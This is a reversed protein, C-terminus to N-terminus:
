SLYASQESLKRNLEELNDKRLLLDGLIEFSIDEASKNRQKKAEVIARETNEIQASVKVLGVQVEGMDNRLKLAKKEDPTLRQKKPPLGATNASINTFSIAKIM